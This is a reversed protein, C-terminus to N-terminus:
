KHGAEAASGDLSNLDVVAVGRAGALAVRGKCAAVAAHVTGVPSTAVRRSESTSQQWRLAQGNADFMLVDQSAVAVGSVLSSTGGTPVTVWSKGDGAGRFANGRLGFLLLEADNVPDTPIVGFFSGEYPSPVKSFPGDATPAHLILGQEGVIIVANGRAHIAYLHLGKANPIYGGMWQWSAGGDTTSLALGFAGVVMGRQSTWFHLAFLPKDPGEKILREADRLALRRSDNLSADPAPAGSAEELAKEAFQLALQAAQRGDLQRQWTTGGDRTALVVGGHGVAWGFREDIFQLATLTVGVPVAAQQWHAACDDSYIVQGREGAAVLREGARAISFMASRTTRNSIVASQDLLPDALAIATTSMAIALALVHTKSAHRRVAPWCNCATRWDRM